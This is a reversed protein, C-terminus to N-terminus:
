PESYCADYRIKDKFSDLDRFNCAQVSKPVFDRDYTSGTTSHYRTPLTHQEWHGNSPKM